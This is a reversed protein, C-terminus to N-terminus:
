TCSFEVNLNGDQDFNLSLIRTSYVSICRCKPAAVLSDLERGYPSFQPLTFKPHLNCLEKGRHPSTLVTDQHEAIQAVTSRQWCISEQNLNTQVLCICHRSGALLPLLMMMPLHFRYREGSLRQCRRERSFCCSSSFRGAAITPEVEWRRPSDSVLSNPSQKSRQFM